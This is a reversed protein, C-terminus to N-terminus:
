KLITETDSFSTMTLTTNLLTSESKIPSPGVQAEKLQGKRKYVLNSYM